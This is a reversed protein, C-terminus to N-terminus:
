GSGWASPPLHAWNTTDRGPRPPFPIIHGADSESWLTGSRLVGFLNVEAKGRSSQGAGRCGMWLSDIYTRKGKHFAM